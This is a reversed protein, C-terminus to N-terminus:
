TALLVGGARASRVGRAGEQFIGAGKPPWSPMLIADFIADFISTLFSATKSRRPLLKPERKSGKPERKLDRIARPCRDVDFVDIEVFDYYFWYFILSFAEGAGGSFSGFDVWTAEM